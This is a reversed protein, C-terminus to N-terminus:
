QLIFKTKKYGKSILSLVLNKAELNSLPGLIVIYSKDINVINSRYPTNIDLISSKALDYSKFGHIKLFLEKESIEDFGIVIPQEIFDIREFSSTNLEDIEENDLELITIKDTPASDITDFFAPDSMSQTVVKLQKSADPIIEVKVRTIKNKYFKLLQAAKRSVEILSTNDNHRDIIKLTVFMGNELNTIKVISPLPLTKHRGLLETVKNFDNNITKVNHLEKEYFSALGIENYQYNEEPIYHVGDIYYPKELIYKVVLFDSNNIKKPKKFINQSDSANDIEDNNVNNSFNLDISQCSIVTFIFLFNTLLKIV